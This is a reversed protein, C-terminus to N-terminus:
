EKRCTIEEKEETKLNEGLFVPSPTTRLSYKSTYRTTGFSGFRSAAASRTVDVFDGCNRLGNVIQNYWLSEKKTCIGGDEAHLSYTIPNKWLCLKCPKLKQEESEEAEADAETVDRDKTVADDEYLERRVLYGFSANRLGYPLKNLADFVDALDADLQDIKDQYDDLVDLVYEEGAMDSTTNDIKKRLTGLQDRMAAFSASLELLTLAQKKYREKEGRSLDKIIGILEAKTIPKDDPLKTVSEPLVIQNNMQEKSLKDNRKKKRGMITEMIM